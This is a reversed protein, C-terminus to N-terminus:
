IKKSLCLCERRRHRQIADPKLHYGNRELVRALATSAYPSVLAAEFESRETPKMRELTKGVGCDPGKARTEAELDDLLSM